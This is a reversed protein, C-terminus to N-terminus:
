KAKYYYSPIGTGPHTFTINFPSAAYGILGTSTNLVSLPQYTAGAPVTVMLSTTSASSVAARVAGFYVINNNPVANFNTGTITVATGVPGAVPTFSTIGPQAYASVAIFLPFALLLKRFAPLRQSM